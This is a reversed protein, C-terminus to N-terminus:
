REHWLNSQNDFDLSTFLKSEIKESPVASEATEGSGHEFKLPTLQWNSIELLLKEINEDLDM